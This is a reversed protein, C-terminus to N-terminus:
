GGVLRGHERGDPLELNGRQGGHRGRVQMQADRRGLCFQGGVRRRTTRVDHNDGGVARHALIELVFGLRLRGRGLLSPRADHDDPHFRCGLVLWEQSIIDSRGTVIMNRSSALSHDQGEHVKTASLWGSPYPWM